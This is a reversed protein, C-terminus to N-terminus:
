RKLGRTTIAWFILDRSLMRPSFFEGLSLPPWQCIDLICDIMKTLSRTLSARRFRQTANFQAHPEIATATKNRRDYSDIIINYIIPGCDDKTFVRGWSIFVPSAAGKIETKLLGREEDRDCDHYARNSQLNRPASYSLSWQSILHLTFSHAPSMAFTRIGECSKKSKCKSIPFFFM